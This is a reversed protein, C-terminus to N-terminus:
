RCIPFVKSNPTNCLFKNEFKPFKPHTEWFEISTSLRDLYNRKTVLKAMFQFVQGANEVRPRLEIFKMAQLKFAEEIFSASIWTIPLWNFFTSKRSKTSLLRLHQLIKIVWCCDSAECTQPLNIIIAIGVIAVAVVVTILAGSKRPGDATTLLACCLWAGFHGNAVYDHWTTMNSKRQQGLCGFLLFMDASPFFCTCECHCSGKWSYRWCCSCPFKEFHGRYSICFVILTKNHSKTTDWDRKHQSCLYKCFVVLIRKSIEVWFDWKQTSLLKNKFFIFQAPTPITYQINKKPWHGNKFRM